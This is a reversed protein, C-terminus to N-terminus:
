IWLGAASALGFNMPATTLLRYYSKLAAGDVDVINNPIILM